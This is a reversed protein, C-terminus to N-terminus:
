DATVGRVFLRQREITSEFLGDSLNHQLSGWRAPEVGEPTRWVASYTGPTAPESAGPGLYDAFEPNLAALEEGFGTLRDLDLRTLELGMVVSGRSVLPRLASDDLTAAATDDIIFLYPGGDAVSEVDGVRTAEDFVEFRAFDGLDDLAMLVVLPESEHTSGPADVVNALVVGAGIALAFALVLALLTALVKVPRREDM